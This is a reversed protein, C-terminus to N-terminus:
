YGIAPSGEKLRYIEEGIGEMVFIDEPTAGIFKNNPYDNFAHEADTSLINNTITNGSDLTNDKITYNKYFLPNENADLAYGPKTNLIINNTITCNTVGTLLESSSERIVINNSITSATISQIYGHLICNNITNNRSGGLTISNIYCSLILTQPARSTGSLRQGELKSVKCREVTCNAKEIRLETVICGEIKIGDADLRTLSELVATSSSEGSFNYGPGIVTVKKTISSGSLVCGPELYLTDGPMVDNSSMAANISTFDPKVNANSHIRWSRAQVSQNGLSLGIAAVAFFLFHKM